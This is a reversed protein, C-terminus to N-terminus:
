VLLEGRSVMVASGGLLVRPGRVATKVWGGRMSAQYGTLDNKGLREAWYPALACHASGTVPDEDVGSSPAFFRSMFDCGAATTPATVIVGRVAVKKLKGFDPALQKLAADTYLEVLVDFRTRGTWRPAAGLAEELGPPPMAPSAPTAPFDLEIWGDHPTAILVGSKTRFHAPTPRELVGIEWLVHAAALTAHGCLEVEVTPTFWRLSFGDDIIKVFATESLNMERAVSQMWEDSRPEDDLLCVAAPNGKFAESAFADVQYLHLGL